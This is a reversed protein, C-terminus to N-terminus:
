EALGRKATAPGVSTGDPAAPALVFPAGAARDGILMADLTIELEWTITLLQGAYTWPQAPLPYDFPLEISPGPEIRNSTVRVTPGVGSDVAGTGEARWRAVAVVGRYTHRRDGGLRVVAPLTAGPPYRRLGSAEDLQGGLLQLMPDDSM